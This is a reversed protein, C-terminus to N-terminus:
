SAGLRELERRMGEVFRERSFRRARRALESPDWRRESTTRVAEAIKTPEPSDVLVGDVGDRVIDRAGGRALAVVPAGAALAEVMSIGFDEEGVHVFGSASEFRRVLNERPLWGLLEVNEPLIQRLRRELPGIGVMTLKYPSGRFAEAVALPHKYSVLRNVWLFRGQERAGSPDFEVVDVPPHIVSAERGYHAAIRERVAHSIAVYADPRRSAALDIRRLRGALMRLAVGTPGSARRSEVDPLWAYRMPTYCYCLHIADERPRVHTACAHSSSIVVDYSDLDLHEFYRPMLPLLYRWGGQAQGRQRIFPARALKSESVIRDALAPPLLDRAAQFAFVDPQRDPAFLGARMAEVTREAGHFGQFWDHVIASRTRIPPASAQASAV